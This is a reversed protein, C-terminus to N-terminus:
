DTVIISSILCKKKQKESVSQKFLILYITKTDKLPQRAGGRGRETDPKISHRQESIERRSEVTLMLYLRIM